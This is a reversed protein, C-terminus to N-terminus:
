IDLTARKKPQGLPEDQDNLEEHLVDDVDHKNVTIIDDTEKHRVRVTPLPGFLSPNPNPYKVAM